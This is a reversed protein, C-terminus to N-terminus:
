SRLDPEQNILTHRNENVYSKPKKGCRQVSVALFFVILLSLASSLTVAWRTELGQKVNGKFLVNGWESIFREANPHEIHFPFPPLNKWPKIKLKSFM